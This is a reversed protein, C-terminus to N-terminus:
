FRKKEGLNFNPLIEGCFFDNFWHQDPMFKKFMCCAQDQYQTATIGTHHQANPLPYVLPLGLNVLGVVSTTDDVILGIHFIKYELQVLLAKWNM